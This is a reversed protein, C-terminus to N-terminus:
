GGPGIFTPLSVFNSLAGLIGAATAVLLVLQQYKGLRPAAWILFAILGVKLGFMVLFSLSNVVFMQENTASGFVAKAAQVIVQALPNREGQGAHGFIFAFTVLDATQAFVAARLLRPGLRSTRRALFAGVTLGAIEQM